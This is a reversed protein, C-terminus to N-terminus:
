EEAFSDQDVRLAEQLLRLNESDIEDEQGAVLKTLFGKVDDDQLILCVQDNNLAISVIEDRQAASFDARDGLKPILAHTRAFSRSHALDRILADAELESALTIHPFHESFFASLRRYPIIDADKADGWEDMLFANFRQKDVPSYYDSDDTVFYLDNGEPVQALLVEWNIADGLSGKKGPPNGIDHRLRARDVIERGNAVHRARPFLERITRDARLDKAKVAETIKELLAAHVQRFDNQYRRLKEYEGYDKCIAPFQLNLKQEGLRRLADAIRVERVRRFEEQVQEPLWLNVRDQQLLVTLKKLEELDDNTLHYFGLFINTDIFVDVDAGKWM